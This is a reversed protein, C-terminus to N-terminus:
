EPILRRRDSLAPGFCVVTGCGEFRLLPGAVDDLADALRVRLDVLTGVGDLSGDLREFGDPHM